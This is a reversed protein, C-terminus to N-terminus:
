TIQELVLPQATSLQNNKLRSRNAAAAEGLDAVAVM